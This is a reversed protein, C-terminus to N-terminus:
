RMRSVVRQDARRSPATRNHQLVQPEPGSSKRGLGRDLRPQTHQGPRLVKEAGCLCSLAEPYQRKTYYTRLRGDGHEGSITGKLSLVLDYTQDAIEVMKRVEEERRLDLFVMLHMNGDGAHGYIGAEVGQKGFIERLGSIYQPLRSPHVAADEIFALPRKPGKAKNLIPGSIARVKELMAMDKQDKAM